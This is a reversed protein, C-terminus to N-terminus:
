LKLTRINKTIVSGPTKTLKINKIETYIVKQNRPAKSKYDWLLNAIQHLYRKPVDDGDSQLVIHPSSIEAFHFWIDNPESDKIIADNDKANQGILVNYSKDNEEIYITESKVM